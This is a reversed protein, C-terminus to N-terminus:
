SRAALLSPIAGLNPGVNKTGDRKATPKSFARMPSAFAWGWSKSRGHAVKVVAAGAVPAKVNFNNNDENSSSVWYSSSSSSSSSSTLMFGSFLGGCKVREKISDQSGAGAGSSRRTRSKGERHSEVRRLASCDGFGTSIREFFDGSFSRSGCGVSRSRSVKRDFSLQDPSENEEVVVVNEKKLSRERYTSSLGMNTSYSSSSYSIQKMEPVKKGVLQKNFHRFSFFRKKHASFDEFENFHMGKRPIVTSKSRKFIMANNNHNESSSDKKKKKHTLFYPIKSIKFSHNHHHCENQTNSLASSPNTNTSTSTTTFNHHSRFSPSPSSSASPFITIPFSSSVLKGLKEQLCFACIGGPTNNKYPHNTCFM